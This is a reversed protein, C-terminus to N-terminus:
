GFLFATLGGHHIREADGGDFWEGGVDVVDVSWCGLINERVADVRRRRVARGERRILEVVRGIRGAVVRRRLERVLDSVEVLM